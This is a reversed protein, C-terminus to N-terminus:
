RPLRCQWLDHLQGSPERGFLREDWERGSAQAYTEDFKCKAKGNWRLLDDYRKASHDLRRRYRRANEEDFRAQDADWHKKWNWVIHKAHTNWPLVALPFCYLSGDSLKFTQETRVSDSPRAIRDLEQRSLDTGPKHNVAPSANGVEGYQWTALFSDGTTKSPRNDHFLDKSIQWTNKFYGRHRRFRGKDFTPEGSFEGAPLVTVWGCRRLWREFEPDGILGKPTTRIQTIGIGGRIIDHRFIRVGERFPNWNVQRKEHQPKWLVNRNRPNERVRGNTSAILSLDPPEIKVRKREDKTYVFQGHAIGGHIISAPATVIRRRYNFGVFIRGHWVTFDYPSADDSEPWDLWLTPRINV